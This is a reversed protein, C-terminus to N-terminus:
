QIRVEIEMEAAREMYVDSFSRTTVLVKKAYIGGFRKAITDLEYLAHLVQKSDMKGSKCSMFTPVNGKLINVGFGYGFFEDDLSPRYYYIYFLGLVFLVFGLVILKYKKM